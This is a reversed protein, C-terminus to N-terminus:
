IAGLGVSPFCGNRNEGLKTSGERRVSANFYIGNDIVLNLRAFGAIIKTTPAKNSFTGGIPLNYSGCNSRHELITLMILIIMLFDILGVKESGTKKKTHIDM